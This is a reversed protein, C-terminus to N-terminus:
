QLRNHTQGCRNQYALAPHRHWGSHLGAHLLLMAARVRLLVSCMRKPQVEKARELRLGSAHQLGFMCALLVKRCVTQNTSISTCAACPARRVEKARDSLCPPLALRGYPNTARLAGGLAPHPGGAMAGQPQLQPLKSELYM